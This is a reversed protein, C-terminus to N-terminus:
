SKTEEHLGGKKERLCSLILGLSGFFIWADALNFVGYSRKWFTFHIMDIVHGYFFCDFVNGLAGAIIAILFLAHNRAVTYRMLYVLLAALIGIRFLLLPGHYNSLMGWAGGVNTVYHLSLDIGFPTTWLPLTDFVYHHVWWKLLFDLMFLSAAFLSMSLVFRRTWKM